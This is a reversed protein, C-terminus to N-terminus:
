VTVSRNLTQLCIQWKGFKTTYDPVHRSWVEAKVWKGLTYVDIHIHILTYIYAYNHIYTYILYHRYYSLRGGGATVQILHPTVIHSHDIILWLIYWQTFWKYLQSIASYNEYEPTSASICTVWVLTYPHWPWTHIYPAYIYVYSSTYDCIYITTYGYMHRHYTHM